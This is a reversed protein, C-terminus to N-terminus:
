NEATNRWNAPLFVLEEIAAVQL